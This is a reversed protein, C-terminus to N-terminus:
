VSRWLKMDKNAPETIEPNFIKAKFVSNDSISTNNSLWVTLKTLM